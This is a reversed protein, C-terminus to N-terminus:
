KQKVVEDIIHKVALEHPTPVWMMAFESGTTVDSLVWTDNKSSRYLKLFVFDTGLPFQVEKTETGHEWLRENVVKGTNALLNVLKEVARNESNPLM